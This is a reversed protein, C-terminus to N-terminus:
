MTDAATQVQEATGVPTCTQGADIRKLLGTLVHGPGLEYFPGLGQSACWQMSQTWRVPSTVQRALLDRVQDPGGGPLATTNALVPFAPEKFAAHALERALSEAASEMLPTHFAGAVKLEIARRAGAETCLEAARTAATREGSLVLQGPSNYNAPWVKGGEEQVQRCADEVQEDDLGIISFMTGDTEECAAQMYAGRARVLRVADTLEIAGAAVLAAYEGLSLGAAAAAEIRRGLAAEVARLVAVSATVIVPQSVDTRTLEEQPGEFCLKKLDMDAAESAAEFVERAAPYSECVDKQMGVSQAGQGPFLLVIGGM